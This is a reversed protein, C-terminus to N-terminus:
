IASNAPPHSSDCLPLQTNIMKLCIPVSVLTFNRDSPVYNVFGVDDDVEEIMDVRNDHKSKGILPTM